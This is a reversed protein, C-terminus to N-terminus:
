AKLKLKLQNTELKKEEGKKKLSFTIKQTVKISKSIKNKEKTTTDSDINNMNNTPTNRTESTEETPNKDVKISYAVIDGLELNSDELAKQAKKIADAKAFNMLVYMTHKKNGAKKNYDVYAIKYLNSKLKDVISDVIDTKHLLVEVLNSVLYGNATMNSTSETINSGAESMNGSALNSDVLPGAVGTNNAEGIKNTYQLKGLDIINYKPIGYNVLLETLKDVDNKVETLAEDPNILTKEITIGIRVMDSQSTGKAEGEVTIVPQYAFITTTNTVNTLIDVLTVNVPQAPEPYKQATPAELGTKPVETVNENPQTVSVNTTPTVNGPPTLDAQRLKSKASLAGIAFLSVLFLLKIIKQM